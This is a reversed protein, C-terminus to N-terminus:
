KDDLRSARTGQVLVLNIDCMEIRPMSYITRDYVEVFRAFGNLFLYEEAHTGLILARIKPTHNM